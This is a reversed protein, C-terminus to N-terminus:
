ADAEPTAADAPASSAPDASAAASAAPESPQPTVKPAIETEEIFNAGLLERVVAEGYRGSTPAAAARISRAPKAAAATVETAASQVPM